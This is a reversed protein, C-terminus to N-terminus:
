QPRDLPNELAAFPGSACPLLCPSRGCKQAQENVAEGRLYRSPQAGPLGPAGGSLVRAPHGGISIRAQEPHGLRPPPTSWEKRRPGAGPM